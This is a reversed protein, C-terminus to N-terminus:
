ACVRVVANCLRLPFALEDGSPLQFARWPASSLGCNWAAAIAPVQRGGQCTLISDLGGAGGGISNVIGFPFCAAAWGAARGLRIIPEMWDLCSLSLSLSILLNSPPLPRRPLSLFQLLLLLFFLGAPRRPPFEAMDSLCGTGRLSADCAWGSM